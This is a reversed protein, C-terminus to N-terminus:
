NVGEPFIVLYVTMYPTQIRNQGVRSIVSTDLCVQVREKAHVSIYVRVYVCVCRSLLAYYPTRLENLWHM